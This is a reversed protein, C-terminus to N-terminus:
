MITYNGSENFVLTNKENLEIENVDSDLIALTYGKIRKAETEILRMHNILYYFIFAKNIVNGVVYFNYSNDKLKMTFTSFHSKRDENSTEEGEEGEEREGDNIELTLTMSLFTTKTRQIDFETNKADENTTRVAYDFCENDNDEVKYYVFLDYNTEDSALGELFYEIVKYTPEHSRNNAAFTLARNYLRMAYIQLFSAAYMAKWCCTVLLDNFEQQYNVYVFEHVKCILFGSVFAILLSM